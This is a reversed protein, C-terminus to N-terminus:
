RKIQGWLKYRDAFIAAMVTDYRMQIIWSQGTCSVKCWNLPTCFRNYGHNSFQSSQKAYVNASRYHLMLTNNDWCQQTWINNATCTVHNFWHCYNLQPPAGPSLLATPLCFCMVDRCLVKNGTPSAAFAFAISVRCTLWRWKTSNSKSKDFLLFSLLRAVFILTWDSGLIDLRCRVSVGPCGAPLLKHALALLLVPHWKTLQAVPPCINNQQQRQWQSYILTLAYNVAYSQCWMEEFKYLFLLDHGLNKRTIQFNFSSKTWEWWWLWM